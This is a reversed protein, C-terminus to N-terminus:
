PQSLLYYLVKNVAQQGTYASKIGRYGAFTYFTM